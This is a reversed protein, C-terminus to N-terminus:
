EGSLWIFRPVQSWAKIKYDSGQALALPSRPLTRLLDTSFHAMRGGTLDCHRAGPHPLRATIRIPGPSDDEQSDENLAMSWNVFVRTKAAPSSASVSSLKQVDLSSCPLASYRM